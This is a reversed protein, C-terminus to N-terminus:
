LQGTKGIIIKITELSSEFHFSGNSGEVRSKASFHVERCHSDNILDTVNEPNVGGGALLDIRGAALNLLDNLIFRGEYATKKGGSTLIRDCSCEIIDELSQKLNESVDFAKHFAVQMPRAIKVIEKLREKQVRGQKDLFGVVVGHAGLEKCFKVDEKIVEFEAENYYFDGSRPRILVMVQLNLNECCYKTLAPSPTLGDESLAQCLEIRDAGGLQAAIASNVSDACVETIVKKM